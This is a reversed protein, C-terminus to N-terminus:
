EDTREEGLAKARNELDWQQVTAAQAQVELRLDYAERVSKKWLGARRITEELDIM